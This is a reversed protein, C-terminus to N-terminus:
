PLRGRARQITAYVAKVDDIMDLSPIKDLNPISSFHSRRRSKWDQYYSAAHPIGFTINGSGDAYQAYAVDTMTALDLSKAIRRPLDTVIIVRSDTVGYVTRSRRQADVVFRGLAWYLGIAVFFVGVLLFLAPAGSTFVTYTWYVAFGCWALMFPIEYADRSQFQIGQKPCGSWLLTEGAELFHHLAEAPPIDTEHETM